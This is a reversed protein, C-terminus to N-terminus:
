QVRAKRLDDLRVYDTQQLQFDGISQNFDRGRNAMQVLEELPRFQLRRDKGLWAKMGLVDLLAVYRPYSPHAM